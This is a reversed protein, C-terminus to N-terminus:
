KKPVRTKALGLAKDKNVDFKKEAVLKSIREARTFVSRNTGSTSKTRLSPDLSM